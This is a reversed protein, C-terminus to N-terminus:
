TKTRPVRGMLFFEPNPSIALANALRNSMAFFAAISAIDWADEDSLGHRELAEYDSADLKASELSV